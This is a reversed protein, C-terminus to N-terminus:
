ENKKGKNNNTIFNLIRPLNLKYTFWATYFWVNGKGNFDTRKNPFLIQLGYKRYLHQRKQGELATIPLLLAFPKQLQYCKELFKDKLSYPNTIIIDFNNTNDNFFDDTSIVKYSKKEFYEKIKGTGVACEYITMDQKIYPQIIDLISSPSYLEDSHNKGMLNVKTSINQNKKFM